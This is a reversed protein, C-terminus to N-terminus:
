SAGKRVNCPICMTQLNQLDDTGGLARPIKHDVSLNRHSGCSVCEWGDRDFVMRTTGPGVDSGSGISPLPPLAGAQEAPITFQLRGRDNGPAAFVQLEQAEILRGVADRMTRDALKTMAGLDSLGMVASAPLPADDWGARFAVAFLVLRASHKADSNQARSAATESAPVVRQDTAPLAQSGSLGHTVTM